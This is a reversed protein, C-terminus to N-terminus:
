AFNDYFMMCFNAIDISEMAAEENDNSTRMEEFEGEIRSMIESPKMKGWGGKHDNFRLTQEMAWAFALVGHRIEEFDELEELSKLKM